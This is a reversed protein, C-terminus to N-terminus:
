IHMVHLDGVDARLETRNFPLKQLMKGELTGTKWQTTSGEQLPQKEDVVAAGGVIWGCGADESDLEM